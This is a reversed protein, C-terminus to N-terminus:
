APPEVLDFAVFRDGVRAGSLQLLQRRLGHVQRLLPGFRMWVLLHVEPRRLLM